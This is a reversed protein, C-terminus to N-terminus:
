LIVALLRQQDAGVGLGFLPNGCNCLLGPEVIANRLFIAPSISVDVDPQGFVLKGSAVDNEDIVHGAGAMGQFLRGGFKDASSGGADTHQDSM